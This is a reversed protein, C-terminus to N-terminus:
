SLSPRVLSSTSTVKKNVEVIQV